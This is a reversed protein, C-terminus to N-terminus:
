RLGYIATTDEVAAFTVNIRYYQGTTWTFGVDLVVSGDAVVYLYGSLISVGNTFMAALNAAIAEGYTGSATMAATIFDASTDGGVPFAVFGDGEVRGGFADSTVAAIVDSLSDDVTFVTDQTCAPIANGYTEGYAATIPNDIAEGSVSPTSFWGAVFSSTYAGTDLATFANVAESVDLAQPVEGSEIYADAVALHSDDADGLISWEAVQTGAYNEGYNDIVAQVYEFTIEITFVGGEWEDVRVAISDDVVYSNFYYGYTCLLIYEPLNRAYDEMGSPAAHSADCFLYAAGDDTVVTEFDSYSFGLGMNVFYYAWNAASSGGPAVTFNTGSLDDATFDYMKGDALCIMGEGEVGSYDSNYGVEYYYNANHKTGTGTTVIQGQYEAIDYTAYELAANATFAKFDSKIHSISEWDVAIWEDGAEIKLNIPGEKLVSLTHGELSVVDTSTSKVTVDFDNAAVNTGEVTVVTDLDIVDGVIIDDELDAVVIDSVFKEVVTPTTDSSNQSGSSGKNCGTLALTLAALLGFLKFKTKMTKNEKEM